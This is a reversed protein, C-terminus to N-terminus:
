SRLIKQIEDLDYAPTAGAKSAVFAGTACAFALTEDYPKGDFLAAVFGALFADGAGVSDVTKVRFGPHGYFNGEAYLLAGKEGKTVCIMQVCYHVALWEVLDKEDLNQKDHWNSFVALEDDNLKIIDSKQLLPEVVEQQDFPRRLNVDVLKVAESKLIESLTKRTLPNRSALTGYILLGAEKARKKLPETVQINDWAVPECIEYTANNNEDLYVLVESTPLSQDLQILDTRAGAQKLFSILEEGLDDNGVRSAISVDLGVSNLHLAVNMPAGGPKAGSPLKDWLVEGFCLIKKHQFKM